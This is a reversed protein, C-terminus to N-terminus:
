LSNMVAKRLKRMTINLTNPTPHLSHAALSLEQMAQASDHVRTMFVHHTGVEMDLAKMRLPMTHTHTHTHAHTDDERKRRRM